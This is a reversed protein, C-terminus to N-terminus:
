SNLIVMLQEPNRHVAQQARLQQQEEPSNTMLQEPDSHVAKPARLQQQDHDEATTELGFSGVDLFKSLSICHFSFGIEIFYM